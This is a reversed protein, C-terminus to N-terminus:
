CVKQSTLNNEIDSVAQRLIEFQDNSLRTSLLRPIHKNDSEKRHAPHIFSDLQRFQFKMAARVGYKRVAGAAGRIVANGHDVSSQHNNALDLVILGEFDFDNGIIM